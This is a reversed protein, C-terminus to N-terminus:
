ANDSGIHRFARDRVVAAKMAATKSRFDGLYQDDEDRPALLQLNWDTECQHRTLIYTAGSFPSYGELLEVELETHDRSWEM